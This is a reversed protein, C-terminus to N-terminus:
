KRRRNNEDNEEPKNTEGVREERRPPFPTNTTNTVSRIIKIERERERERECLRQCSFRSSSCGLFKKAPSCFFFHQGIIYSSRAAAVILFSMVCIM